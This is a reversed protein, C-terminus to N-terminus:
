LPSSLIASSSDFSQLGQGSPAVESTAISACVMMRWVGNDEASNEVLRKMGTLLREKTGADNTELADAFKSMVTDLVKQMDHRTRESLKSNKNILEEVQSKLKQNVEELSKIHQLVPTMDNFNRVEGKADVVKTPNSGAPQGQVQGQAQGQMGGQPQGGFGAGGQLTYNAAYGTSHANDAESIRECEVIGSRIGTSVSARPRQPRFSLIVLTVGGRCQVRQMPDLVISKRDEEDEHCRGRQRPKFGVKFVSSAFSLQGGDRNQVPWFLLDGDAQILPRARRVRQLGLAAFVNDEVWGARGSRRGEGFVPMHGEAGVRAYVAPRAGQIFVKLSIAMDIWGAPPREIDGWACALCEM